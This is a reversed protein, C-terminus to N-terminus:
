SRAPRTGATTMAQPLHRLVLIAIRRNAAALPDDPLLPDRDALGTVSRLRTEPLGNEVLLRRTANAREASLEWNTREPGPFPAADTHGTVSIPQSLKLLVPVVKQMLLRVRENPTASGSPFMPLKVEDMIQIRLGEPTMDISLQKVLEALAPDSRVADKIQQAAQEFATKELREREAEQEAPTMRSIDIESGRRIDSPGGLGLALSRVAPGSTRSEPVDEGDQDEAVPGLGVGTGATSRANDTLVVDHGDKTREVVPRAGQIVQVAGRDSVMTGKDFPTHGGFPEGTGSSNHSMLNAPSFYDALGRRQEETTANLLWMLLFFAMMATVFDAYAVKWAGGHHGGEAIEYKKVIV